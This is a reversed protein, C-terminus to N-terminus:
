EEGPAHGPAEFMFPIGLAVSQEFRAGERLTTAKVHGSCFPCARIERLNDDEHTKETNGCKMCHWHWGPDETM